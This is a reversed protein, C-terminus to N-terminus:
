WTPPNLVGVDPLGVSRQWARLASATKPGLAGDVVVQWGAAVLARQLMRGREPKPVEVHPGDRLKTWEGGWVLGLDRAISGIPAYASWDWTLGGTPGYAHLDLACAPLLQHLSWRLLGDYTSNGALWADHQAQASRHVEGLRLTYGPYEVAYRDRLVPWLRQLLPVADAIVPKM